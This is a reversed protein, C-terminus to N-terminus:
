IINIYNILKLNFYFVQVNQKLIATHRPAISDIIKKNFAWLKDWELMVDKKQSAGQSLIYQKLAEM